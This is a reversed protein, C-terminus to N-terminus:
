RDREIGIILLSQTINHAKITLRQLFRRFRQAIQFRAAQRVRLHDAVEPQAGGIAFEPERQRVLVPLGSGIQTSTQLPEADQALAPM